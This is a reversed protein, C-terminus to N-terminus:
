QSADGLEVALAIFQTTQTPNFNNDSVLILTIRGDPLVPGFIMGEVNDPVVGLDQELDAVYQKSMPDYPKLTDLTDWSSVDTADHTSTEFLVVTNGVGVAYSREMALFTGCNDLAQLDVLGNDAYSGAPVPIRPIPSVFYVYEALPRKSDLDYQLVRSPSSETITSPPGDQLLANETATYLFRRNPTSTLSEFALNDRIGTNEQPNPLFKEPVSLERTLKGTLNFRNVFPDIPPTADADGESSIYLFGPRPLDIDEPDLSGPAFDSRNKETLFTVEQFTVDGPDLSGDSLDIDVTYYHADTREDALAYYVGRQSDYAIGSLGGVETDAFRYGTPFTVLGLAEVDVVTQANTCTNPQSYAPSAATMFLALVALTMLPIHFFRFFSRKAM